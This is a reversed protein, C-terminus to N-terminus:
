CNYDVCKNEIDSYGPEQFGLKPNTLYWKSIPQLRKWYIDLAYSQPNKTRELWYASAQFNDYLTKCFNKNILYCSTTQVGSVKNLFLYESPTITFGSAEENASFSIVDYDFNLELSNLYEKAKNRNYFRFDDECVLVNKYDSNIIKDLVLIHSKVCGLLGFEKKYVADIREVKDKLGVQEMQNMFNTLRDKRHELNIVYIKDINSM